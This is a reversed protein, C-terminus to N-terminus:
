QALIAMIKLADEGSWEAEGILRAVEKGDPSVLITTPLGLVGISRALAGGGRDMFRPLNDVKIEEFFADIKRPSNRTTAITLVEFKPSQLENQLQALSPMEVRCPACWTAWFNILLWKGQYQALTLDDGGALGFPKAPIDQPTDHIVFKMMQGSRMEKIQAMTQSANDAAIANQLGLGYFLALILGRRLFSLFPM